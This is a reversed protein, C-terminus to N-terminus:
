LLMQKLLGHEWKKVRDGEILEHDQEPIRLKDHFGYAHLRLAVCQVVM